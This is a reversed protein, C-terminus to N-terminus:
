EWLAIVFEYRVGVPSMFIKAIHFLILLNDNETNYFIRRDRLGVPYEYKQQKKLIYYYNLNVFM